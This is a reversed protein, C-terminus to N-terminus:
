ALSNASADAVSILDISIRQAPPPSAASTKFLSVSSSRSRPVLYWTM